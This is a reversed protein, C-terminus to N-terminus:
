KDKRSKRLSSFEEAEDDSDISLVEADHGWDQDEADDDVRFVSDGHSSSQTEHSPTDINTSKQQKRQADDVEESSKRYNIDPLSEDDEEDGEGGFVGRELDDLSERLSGIEFEQVDNEDQALQSSMAFRRNNATPRWIFAILCFDAFYVVNLWGDLLFWRSKWHNTVFDLTSQNAFILSNVFFFGFIVLISILLIRWLNKYMNAKVYQKREELYKITGTLSSLIWVYFTTMTLSLPIVVFLIIPGANDPDILYSSITFLVAFVFHAGALARCKWMLNGLSPRVVGYGLCVILLLFFTFANRFSNLISLFVLYVMTGKTSGVRNVLDYYGWVIIMEVVLFGCIATIYNQVPLIDGRNQVYSFMWLALVVLYCLALIGFFPLKPIQSAPLKGYANQFVAVGEYQTSPPGPYTSVCYYGTKKIKYTIASPNALDIKQTVIPAYLSTNSHEALLFTGIDEKNCLGLAAARDDCIYKKNPSDSSEVGLLAANRYEFIVTAVWGTKKESTVAVNIYPDTPGGWDKKSYIGTCKM